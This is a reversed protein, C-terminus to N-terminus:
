HIKSKNNVNILETTTPVKKLLQLNKKRKKKQNTKIIEKMEKVM